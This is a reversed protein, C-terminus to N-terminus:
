KESLMRVGDALVLVILVLGLYGFISYVNKVISSFGLTLVPCSVAILVIIATLKKIKLTGRLWELVGYGCSIATTFMSFYLVVSYLVRLLNGRRAVITLFPMEGLEIKGYYLAVAAWIALAIVFLSVGGTVSAGVAIRKRTVMQRMQALIVIATLLNYSAYILASVIYNDCLKSLIGSGFVAVDRFVFTYVGLVFLSVAMIPALFANVALIGKLDFLFVVSCALLMAAMGYIPQIHFGSGFLEGSGAAMSCFSAFMFLTVCLKIFGGIWRGAICRLYEDFGDIGNRETRLLVCLACLTFLACVLLLGYLSQKGYVVFYSLIEQGSAFGAGIVTAVYTGAILLISKMEKM